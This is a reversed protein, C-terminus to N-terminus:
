KIKTVAYASSFADTIDAIKEYGDRTTEYYKDPSLTIKGEFATLDRFEIYGYRTESKGEDTKDKYSFIYILYNGSASSDKVLLYANEFSIDSIDPYNKFYEKLGANAFGSFKKFDEKSMKFDKKLYDGLGTLKYEKSFNAIYIKHKSIVEAAQPCECSMSIIEGNKHGSGAGNEGLSFRFSAITDNGRLLDVSSDSGRVARYGELGKIPEDLKEDVKISLSAAGNVGESVLEVYAFPDIAQVTSLGSVRAAAQAGIFRITIDEFTFSEKGNVKVMIKVTDENSINGQKDVSFSFDSLTFFDSFQKSEYGKKQQMAKQFDDLLKDWRIVNSLDSQKISAYSNYGTLILGAGKSDNQFGTQDVPPQKTDTDTQYPNDEVVLCATSIYENLDIVIPEKLKKNQLILITVTLAASLVLVVVILIIALKAKSKKKKTKVTGSQEQQQMAAPETPAATPENKTGCYACFTDQESLPHGCNKCNM